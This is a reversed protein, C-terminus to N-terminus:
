RIRQIRPSRSRDAGNRCVSHCRKGLSRTQKIEGTIWLNFLKVWIDHENKIWELANQKVWGSFEKHGEEVNYFIDKQMNRSSSRPGFVVWDEQESIGSELRECAWRALKKGLRFDVCEVMSKMNDLQARARRVNAMNDLEALLRRYQKKISEKVATSSYQLGSPIFNAQLRELVSKGFPFIGALKHMRHLCNDVVEKNTGQAVSSTFNQLISDGDNTIESGAIEINNPLHTQLDAEWKARPISERGLRQLQTWIDSERVFWTRSDWKSWIEFLICGALMSDFADMQAYGPGSPPVNKTRRGERRANKDSRPVHIQEGDPVDRKINPILAHRLRDCCEKAKDQGYPFRSSIDEMELLKDLFGEVSDVAIPNQGDDRFKAVKMRAQVQDSLLWAQQEINSDESSSRTM